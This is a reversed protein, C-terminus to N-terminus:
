FGHATDPAAPAEASAKRVPSGNLPANEGRQPLQDFASLQVSAADNMGQLGAFHQVRSPSAVHQWETELVSIARRQRAIHQQARSLELQTVRTKESVQYLSLITLGILVVCAINLIRVM